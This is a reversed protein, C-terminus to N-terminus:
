KLLRHVVYDSLRNTNRFRGKYADKNIDWIAAFTKINVEVILFLAVFPLVMIVGAVYRVKHPVANRFPKLKEYIDM